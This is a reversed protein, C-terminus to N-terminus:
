FKFNIMQRMTLIGMAMWVAAGLLAMQGSPNTFLVSIYNPQLVWVAVGVLPPLAGIIMASAQAESSLAKIKERMLKRSRLVSSLNGLAESLNGGTKQQILIVTNFFNVEPLPMRDYFRQLLQEMPAGMAQNDVLRKFEERVPSASDKAIIQLCQNLPLGSKVGRVIIEIADALQEIFKKQRGKIMAGLLWRPLGIGAAAASMLALYPSKQTVFVILGIMLGLILSTIWFTIEPVALGAQDLRGRITVRSKRQQKERASLEKLADTNAQKLRKNQAQAQIAVRPVKGQKIVKMRKSNPRGAGSFVLLGLGALVAFVLGSFLLAPDM